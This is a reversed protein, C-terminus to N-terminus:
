NCEGTFIAQVKPQRVAFGPGKLDRKAIKLALRGLRVRELRDM